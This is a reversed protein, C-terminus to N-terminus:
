VFDIKVDPETDGPEREIKGTECFILHAQLGRLLGQNYAKNLDYQPSAVETPFLKKLTQRLEHLQQKAKELYEKSVKM